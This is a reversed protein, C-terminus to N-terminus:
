PADSLRRALNRLTNEELDGILVFTKGRREWSHSRVGRSMRRLRQPDVASKLQFLTVRQSQGQYVQVFVRESGMPQVRSSELRYGTAPPIWVPDFGGEQAARRMMMVPTVVTAGQRRIQFDAARIRPNFNIETFEFYGVQTGVPDFLQRKLMAGTRPDVHVRQLVNGHRDRLVVQETRVGAVAEGTETGLTFGHRQGAELMRTLQHQALERRPPLVRIENRDPFFHRRDNPGEVIVQGAFPSDSPFEIRTWLGNRTIFETHRRREPGHRFEVVRRGTYRLKPGADLARQLVPPVSTQAPAVTALPLTAAVAATLLLIRFTM